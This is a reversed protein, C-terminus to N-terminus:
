ATSGRPGCHLRPSLLVIRRSSYSTFARRWKPKGAPKDPDFREREQRHFEALMDAPMRQVTVPNDKLDRIASPSIVGTALDVIGRSLGYRFLKEASELDLLVDRQDLKADDVWAIRTKDNGVYAAYPGYAAKHAGTMQTLHRLSANILQLHSFGEVPDSQFCGDAVLAAVVETVLSPGRKRIIERTRIFSFISLPVLAFIIHAFM